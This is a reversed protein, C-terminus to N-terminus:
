SRGEKLPFRPVSGAVSRGGRELDRLVRGTMRILAETDVESGTARDRELRHTARSLLAVAGATNGRQLHCLGAALQTVAKWSSRSDHRVEPHKWLYEFFEHAEFYRQEDFLRAAVRLADWPDLGAREPDQRDSLEDVCGVPLPRGFRDRPGTFRPRGASDRDRDSNM